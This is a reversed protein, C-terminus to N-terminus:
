IEKTNKRRKFLYINTHKIGLFRKLKFHKEEDFGLNDFFAKDLKPDVGTIYIIYFPETNDILQINIESLISQYLPIAEEKKMEWLPEFFFLITPQNKYKYDKMDGQIVNIENIGDFRIKAINAVAPELEVCDLTNINKNKGSYRYVLDIVEGDACGFDIFNYKAPPLEDLIQLVAQRVNRPLPIAASARNKFKYNYYYGIYTYENYIFIAAIILLLIGIILLTIQIPTM